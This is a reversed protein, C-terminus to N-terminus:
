LPILTGCEGRREETLMSPIILQFRLHPNQKASQEDSLLYSCFDLQSTYPVVLTISGPPVSTSYAVNGEVTMQQFHEGIKTSRTLLYPALGPLPLVVSVAPAQDFHALSTPCFSVTLFRPHDPLKDFDIAASGYPASLTLDHFGPPVSFQATLFFSGVHTKVADAPLPTASDVFIAPPAAGKNIGRLVLAKCYIATVSVSSAPATGAAICRLPSLFLGLLTLAQIRCCFM